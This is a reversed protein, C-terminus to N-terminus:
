EETGLTKMLVQLDPSVRIDRAPLWSVKRFTHSQNPGCQLAEQPLRVVRGSVGGAQDAGM